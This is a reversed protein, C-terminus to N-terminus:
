FGKITLPLVLMGVGGGDGGGRGGRGGLGVCVMGMCGVGWGRERGAVLVRKVCAHVRAWARARGGDAHWASRRGSVSVCM